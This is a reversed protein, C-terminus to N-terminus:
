VVKAGAAFYKYDDSVGMFRGAAGLGPFIIVSKYLKLVCAAIKAKISKLCEIKRYSFCSLSVAYAYRIKVHM